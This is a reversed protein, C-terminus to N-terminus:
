IEKCGEGLVNLEVGNAAFDSILEQLISRRAQVRELKANNSLDEQEIDEDFNDAMWIKIRKLAPPIRRPECMLHELHSVVLGSCSHLELIELSPPIQSALLFPDCYENFRDKLLGNYRAWEIYILMDMTISLVKLAGYNFFNGCQARPRRLNPAPPVRIDITEMERSLPDLVSGLDSWQWELRKRLSESAREYLGVAKYTFHKLSNLGSVIEMLTDTRIFTDHLELRPLYLGQPVRKRRSSLEHEFIGDWLELAELTPLELLLKAISILKRCSFVGQPRISRMSIRRLKPFALHHHLLGSYCSCSKKFAIGSDVSVVEVNSLSPLLLLLDDTALWKGTIMLTKVCQALDARQGFTQILHPATTVNLGIIRYLLPNSVHHMRRSTLALSRLEKFALYEFILFLLENSLDTLSSM